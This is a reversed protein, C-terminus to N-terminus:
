AIEHWVGFLLLALRLTVKHALKFSGNDSGSIEGSKLVFCPVPNGFDRDHCVAIARNFFGFGECVFKSNGLAIRSRFEALHEFGLLRVEDIDDSRGFSMELKAFNGRFQSDGDNTLLRERGSPVLGELKGLDNMFGADATHDVLVPSPLWPIAFDFFEKLGIGDPVDEVTIDVRAEAITPSVIGVKSALGKKAFVLTEEDELGADMKEVGEAEEKAFHFVDMRMNSTSIGNDFSLVGCEEEAGMCVSHSREEIGVTVVFRFGFIRAVGEAGHSDFAGFAVEFKLEIARDSDFFESLRRVEVGVCWAFFVESSIANVVSLTM